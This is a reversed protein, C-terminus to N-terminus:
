TKLDMNVNVKTQALLNRLFFTKQMTEANYKVDVQSEVNLAISCQPINGMEKWCDLPLVGYAWSYKHFEQLGTYNKKQLYFHGM